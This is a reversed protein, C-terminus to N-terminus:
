DRGGGWPPRSAARAGSESGRHPFTLSTEGSATTCDPGRWSRLTILSSLGQLRPLCLVVGGRWVGRGHARWGPSLHWGSVATMRQDPGWISGREERGVRQMASEVGCSAGVPVVQRAGGAREGSSGPRRRLVHIREEARQRCLQPWTGGQCRFCGRNRGKRACGMGDKKFGPGLGTCCGQSAPLQSNEMELGEPRGYNSEQCKAQFLSWPSLM